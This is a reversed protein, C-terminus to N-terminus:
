IGNAPDIRGSTVVWSFRNYQRLWIPFSTRFYGNSAIWSSKPVKVELKVSSVPDNPINRLRKALIRLKINDKVADVIDFAALEELTNM